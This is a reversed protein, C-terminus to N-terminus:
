GYGNDVTASAGGVGAAPEGHVDCDRHREGPDLDPDLVALRGRSLCTVPLGIM